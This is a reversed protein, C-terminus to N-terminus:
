AASEWAAWTRLRQRRHAVHKKVNHTSCQWAEALPEYAETELSAYLMAAAKGQTDLYALVEHLYTIDEQRSPVSRLAYL